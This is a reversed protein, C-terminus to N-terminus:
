ENTAASRYGKSKYYSEIDDRSYKKWLKEKIRSEKEKDWPMNGLAINLKIQNIQKVADDDDYKGNKLIAKLEKEQQANLEIASHTEREM